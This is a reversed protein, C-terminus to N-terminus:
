AGPATERRLAATSLDAAARTLGDGTFSIIRGQWNRIWNLFQSVSDVQDSFPALPFTTLENEFDILWRAKEPHKVLGAEYSASAGFMRTVKDAEPEIANFQGQGRWAELAADRDVYWGAELLGQVLRDM